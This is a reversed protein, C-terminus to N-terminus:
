GGIPQAVGPDLNIAERWYTEPLANRRRRQTDMIDGVEVAIVPRVSADIGSAVVVQWGPTAANLERLFTAASATYAVVQDHILRGTAYYAGLTPLPPYFRGRHARGRKAATVLSIAATLQPHISSTSAGAIGPTGFHYEVTETKSVYKGDAGIRNLKITDLSASNQIRTDARQFWGTCAAAVAGPIAPLPTDAGTPHLTLSTAWVEQADFM